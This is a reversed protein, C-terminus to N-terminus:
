RRVLSIGNVQADINSGPKQDIQINIRADQGRNALASQAGYLQGMIDPHQDLAGEIRPLLKLLYNVTEQKLNLSGDDSVAKNGGNYQSLMKTIDGGYRKSLDSFYRAAANTQKHPDFLAAGELGYAKATEPMFQFLGVAGASSEANPDWGSEVDAVSALLNQPLMSRTNIMEAYKQLGSTSSKMVEPGGREIKEILSKTPIEMGAKATALLSGGVANGFGMLTPPPRSEGDKLAFSSKRETEEIIKKQEEDSGGFFRIISWTGEALSKVARSFSGLDSKFEDSGLWDAFMQLGGELTDFVAQGNPGNLFREISSTLNDSLLNIPRNLRALAAIFANGIRDADHVLNSSTDQYQGLMAPTLTQDLQRSRQSFTDNLGPIQDSNALIQNATAVDIAGDLKQAELISQSVGRGRYQELLGSVETMFKPLNEAPNDLPNLHLSTLASYAPDSPKNQANALFQLINDTGSIRTGYVSKAADMQGLTLNLGQAGTYQEAVKHAMYGYGFPGVVAISAIKAGWSVTTEFLGKLTSTTAGLTKNILGFTKLTGQADKNLEKLFKDFETEGTQKKGNETTSGPPTVPAPLPASPTSPVPLGGPGISLATKFKDAIEQLKQIKEDSFDLTLVPLQNGAM